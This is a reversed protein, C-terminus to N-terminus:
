VVFAYNLFNLGFVGKTFFIKFENLALEGSDLKQCLLEILIRNLRNVFLKQEIIRITGIGLLLGLDNKFASFVNLVGERQVFSNVLRELNFRLIRSNLLLEQLLYYIWL